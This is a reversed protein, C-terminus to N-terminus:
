GGVRQLGQRASQNNPDISLARSFSERARNRDGSALYAQGLAAHYGAHRPQLAIARQYAAIARAHQGQALRAGGLGAYSGAHRPNMETAEEYAQAAQAFRGARFHDLAEARAREFRALRSEGAPEAPAPAPERPPRSTAAPERAPERPAPQAVPEPQAAPQPEPQAVPPPTPEPPPPAVVPEPQAVIPPPPIVPPPPQVLPAPVPAVIPPPAPIAPHIAPAVAIEPEDGGRMALWVAAGAGITTIGCVGVVAVLAVIAVLPSRKKKAPVARAAVPAAQPAQALAQPPAAQPAATPMATAPMAMTAPVPSVEPRAERDVAMTEALDDYDLGDGHDTIRTQQWPPAAALAAQEQSVAQFGPATGPRQPAPAGNGGPAAVALPTARAVTAMAEDADELDMASLEETGDASPKAPAPGRVVEEARALDLASLEETGDPRPKKASPPPPPKSPTHAPMGIVTSKGARPPRLTGTGPAPVAVSKDSLTEFTQTSERKSAADEPLFPELARRVQQASFPRERPEKALLQALLTSVNSPLEVKPTPAPRSAHAELLEAPTGTFPPTGTLMEYLVCGLAYLDSRFSVLKGKAQEPSVYEPTGMVDFVSGTEIRAAIGADIVTVRPLGSPQPNLIVHGPKLDRHLLGSRHLEDLASAMQAAIALAEPVALAGGRALKVRLSVGEVWERFVWPVGNADGTALPVALSPNALTAQKVLERKLRAKEAPTVNVPLRLLKLVGRRGTQQDDALYLEGSAGQAYGQVINFRARVM